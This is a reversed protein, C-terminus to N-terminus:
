VFLFCMFFLIIPFYSSFISWVQVQYFEERAYIFSFVRSSRKKKAEKSEEQEEGKLESRGEKTIEGAFSVFGGSFGQCFKEERKSFIERWCGFLVVEFYRLIRRELGRFGGFYRGRLVDGFAGRQGVALIGGAGKCCCAVKRQFRRAVHRGRM